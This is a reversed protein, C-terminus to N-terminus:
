TNKQFATLTLCISDFAVLKSRIGHTKSFNDVIMALIEEYVARCPKPSLEIRKM